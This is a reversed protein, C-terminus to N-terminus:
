ALNEARPSMAIWSREVFRRELTKNLDATVTEGGVTVVAEAVTSFFVRTGVLSPPRDWDPERERIAGVVKAALRQAHRDSATENAIWNQDLVRRAALVYDHQRKALSQGEGVYQWEIEQETLVLGQDGGRWWTFCDFRYVGPEDPPSWLDEAEADFFSLPSTRKDEFAVYNILAEVPRNLKLAVTVPGSPMPVVDIRDEPGWGTDSLYMLDSLTVPVRQLTDYRATAM